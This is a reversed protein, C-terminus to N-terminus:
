AWFSCIEKQRWPFGWFLINKTSPPSGTAPSEWLHRCPAPSASASTGPSSLTKRPSREGAIRKLFSRAKPLSPSREGSGASRRGSDEAFAGSEVPPKRAVGPGGGTREEELAERYRNRPLSSGQDSGSTGWAPRWKTPNTRGAEWPRPRPRSTGPRVGTRRPASRTTCLVPSVLLGERKRMPDVGQLFDDDCCPIPLSGSANRDHRCAFSTNGTTREAHPGRVPTQRGVDEM